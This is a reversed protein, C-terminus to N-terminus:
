YNHLGMNRILSKDLFVFAMTKQCDSPARYTRAIHKNKIGTMGLLCTSIRLIEISPLQRLLIHPCDKILM